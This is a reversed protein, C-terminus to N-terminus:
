ISKIAKAVKSTLDQCPTIVIDKGSINKKFREVDKSGKYANGISEIVSLIKPNSLGKEKALAIFNKFSGDEFLALGFKKPPKGIFVYANNEALVVEVPDPIQGVLEKLPEEFNGLQKAASHDKGLEPYNIKKSFLGM